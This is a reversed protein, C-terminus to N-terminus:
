GAQGDVVVIETTEDDKLGRIAGITGNILAAKCLVPVIVSIRTM